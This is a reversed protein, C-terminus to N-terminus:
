RRKKMLAATALILPHGTGARALSPVAATLAGSAALRLFARRQM